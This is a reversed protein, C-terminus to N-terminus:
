FKLDGNFLPVVPAGGGQLPAPHSLDSPARAAESFLFRHNKKKKLHLKVMNGLSTKFDAEFSKGL